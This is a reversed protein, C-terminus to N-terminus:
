FLCADIEIKLKHKYVFLKLKITSSIISKPNLVLDKRKGIQQFAQVNKHNNQSDVELGM